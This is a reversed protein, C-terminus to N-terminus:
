CRSSSFQSFSYSLHRETAQTEFFFNNFSRVERAVYAIENEQFEHGRRSETLTGGELYEFVMWCEDKFEYANLLKVINPSNCMRLYRVENFNDTKEQLSTHATKKVAVKENYM